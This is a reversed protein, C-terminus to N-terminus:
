VYLSVGYFPGIIRMGLLELVMVAAGALTVALYLVLHNLQLSSPAASKASQNM